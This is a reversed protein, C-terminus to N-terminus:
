DRQATRLQKPRRKAHWLRDGGLDAASRVSSGTVALSGMDRLRTADYVECPGSLALDHASVVIQGARCEAFRAVAAKGTLHIIEGGAVAMRAVGGAKDDWRASANGQDVPDGDNELWTRAVFGAGRPKSLARGQDTMVGVLAGGEAILIAPREVGVWLAAALVMPAVGALRARGQWLIVGLAGLAFLPLVAGPPSPLYRRAGSLGAVWEAVWLIWQIGWRMLWLGVAELGFPALAAALVASPMVVSGMLPVSLLNALLGYHAVANFHAAGIPATALGAIFSSLLVGLVARIWGPGPLSLDAERMWGYAAVLATTAAFSMQFGPGMLAEPRLALVIPAAIAVSRLSIARRDLMVAVLMVAAMIFARETAVSAGSLALYAAAAMLAGGAAIKRVPWRLAIWPVLALGYRLVAFVVGVLLGMHLGSIALLHATNAARLWELAEQSVGSRDGTTVAAGFGGIDGGQVEIIRATIARRLRLLALGESPPAALLVPNRTYGVAGLGQFWAHRRFDFGGPEVPGGPPSLHGTTMVRQGPVLDFAPLDGHLAVRVQGPTRAPSLRELVVQDLRLRLADSASRDIGIIRGEIPGYYRWELVPASVQHARYGAALFGTAALAVAWGLAGLGPPLLRAAVLALVALAGLGWYTAQGPEIQRAFYLGIGCAFAVPAWPCLHGRQRLLGLDLWALVRM